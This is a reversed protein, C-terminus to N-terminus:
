LHNKLTHYFTKYARSSAKWEPHGEVGDWDDSRLELYPYLLAHLADDNKLTTYDLGHDEVAYLVAKGVDYKQDPTLDEKMHDAVKRGKDANM